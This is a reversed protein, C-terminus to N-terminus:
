SLQHRSHHRRRFSARQAQALKTRLDGMTTTALVLVRALAGTEEATLARSDM